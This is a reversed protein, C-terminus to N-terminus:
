QKKETDDVISFRGNVCDLEVKMGDRLVRTAVKTGVLCPMAYERAIIAAHCTIGGEDTIIGIAKEMALTIDPTTMSAVLISGKDMSEADAFSRVVKVIGTAEGPCAIEGYYASALRPEPLLRKLLGYASAGYYASIDDGNFVIAEGNKRKTIEKEDLRKGLRLMSVEDARYLMLTEDELGYRKAIESLLNKRIYYFYRDSTEATRTRLYTFKAILDVIRSQEADKLVIAKRAAAADRRKSKVNASLLAMAQECTMGSARNDFEKKTVPAIRKGLPNNKWEYGDIYSECNGSAVARLFCTRERSYDTSPLLAKVASVLEDAREAGTLSILRDYLYDDPRMMMPVYSNVYSAIERGYAAFLEDDSLESYDKRKIQSTRRRVRKVAKEIKGIFEYLFGNVDLSSWVGNAVVDNKDSYFERGCVLLGETIPVSFGFLRRQIDSQSARAQVSHSFVSFDRFVYLNWKGEPVFPIVDSLVTQRRLQLFWLKGDYAWEVDVPAGERQELIKAARLLESDYGQGNEEKGYRSTQPVVKGSVLNDGCGAVREILTESANHPSTSFLVGAEVSFIQRQVIVAMGRSVDQLQKSYAAASKNLASEYVRCVSDLLGAKSVNLETLYQGAFSANEGDESVGSSRVSFADGELKEAYANLEVAFREDNVDTGAAIVFFDPVDFGYETLKFLGYGKGGVTNIDYNGNGKCIIM